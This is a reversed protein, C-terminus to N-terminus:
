QEAHYTYTYTTATAPNTATKIDLTTTSSNYYYQLGAGTADAPSLTVRPATGYASAFTVTALTGATCTGTATTITVTGSIDNGTITVTPSTLTCTAAAGAAVTTSGSTNGTIIHGNITINGNITAAKVTLAGTIDLTALDASTADQFKFFNGTPATDTNRKAYFVNGGNAIQRIDLNGSLSSLTTTGIGVNGRLATTTISSNGLVATNSGLGIAGYGIVIENADGNALAKTENGLYVSSGSTQNATTGDAIYRGANVGMATNNSGTTNFYLAAQGLASNNTGTTNSNLAVYGLATHNIGTTNSQLSSVGNATNNYGTTNSNLANVGLATNYYGTNVRLANYGVATTANDAVLTRVTGNFIIGGTTNVRSESVGLSGDAINDTYTTTTNDNITTVLKMQFTSGGATTRYIKRATVSTDSSTPIASLNVQQSAPNVVASATGTETEGLATVYSVRYQYAGNLNGATANVAVTPATPTAVQDFRLNGNTVQLKQAPATTGVGVNGRLATTTISSNGLVATNSGLGTANYGIVIENADGSALAKTDNGLYVSTGSTQNATSGDAIYRGAQYGLATNSSGTTNSYLAVHGLATNNSGTTNLGLANQGIASNSSGTTNQSLAVYGIASNSSGTTNSYLATYGLASNNTGTTNSQLSSVGNATNNSGTTNSFLANIGLASNNYGTNVRLANVGIATTANDIIGSRITGNFLLGGTTNVRSESVGLSGDAINDTYTTTTNDNITTVLKMLFTSGGATTRYIKRATVSTDSSTPIASLDVQQSAPNVVASAAGTETEGLATVYSVRYQYAGNLNGATANVAVTPATPTAVQDFRLNGNTVQLKQAPNSAGIGVNGTNDITLRVANSATTDTLTFFDNNVSPSGAQLLWSHGGGGNSLKLGNSFSAGGTPKVELTAGPATIGIGVNGRLATTTISSNGLVATNSGLGIANYGIVIENADGSALAKTDNGLYVSSGSTQNATTGDAIFRGAQYGIATNSSGTTNSYLAVHGLATNNSGTTNSFLAAQGLASNSSGTTNSQLSSFGNATNNSGTTNSFLANIGLASNNYGTNVRLANVGIATTANDIIGSRITGNFLLGGTTNVRSESVGLSGDAINDTYTTTTNDNITTVLKMQFASGGATTRYIKRATVSTDSSTPIASLNVQQSAPNVVASATGTETEGLATVYSVRYQYAGNLNGATANVAVTPATPTAVQDFRLNGNTVQLKQAPATTGIGVNGRLATTTISSNGLVATNSGLGIAGYGIVIENTGGNALAKTSAGLYLSNGSTQNATIDDAIYRGAVIGIATNNSGTTNSLLAGYGMATNNGGSTNSQLVFAGNATNNGGITNNYLAQIGQATSGNGTTNSYLANVGLASNYYGTNVRLANYGIATTALDTVLTRATGNFVIGGTTNVRSENVGLSGDAINDTYTTTTNDNITTVLKMQFASGGATTRYIKRATVSTDSSTPIASLDVQQSAPNVVASATGTETEGLATVYSVRYQYAGNLNGATVNVAVTPATPFAVQDFRLNGNTVQLKQAPATTGIGLNGAVLLTDDTKLTNAASRYLNTDTGFTIGSAATGATSSLQLSYTSAGAIRVGINSASGLTQGAVDIGYINAPVITGLVPAAVYMATANTVAGSDSGTDIRNFGAYVTGITVGSPPTSRALNIFGYATSINASPKFEPQASLGGPGDASGTFIPTVSMGRANVTATSTTGSVSLFLSTNSTPVIQLADDTKLTDAASRYLNTDRTATGSGFELIGTSTIGAVAVGGSNNAFLGSNAILSDDTKLIDAASRYLNTDTGFLIGGAATTDAVFTLKSNINTIAGGIGINGAPTIEIANLLDTANRISLNGVRGAVGSGMTRIRWSKGGVSTNTIEIGTENTDADQIDLRMGPSTATGIGVNGGATQLLLNGYTGATGLGSGPAGGQLTISGGNGNTSGSPADGGAGSTLNILSGTGATQGTTGTTNGGKNGTVGLITGGATGAGAVAVPQTGHGVTLVNAATSNQLQLLDATQSAFGKIIQGITGVAGTNVQLKAGPATEGIGVNGNQDIRLREARTISNNPATSFTLATGQNTGATWAQTAVGTIDAGINQTFTSANGSGFQIRGVAASLGPNGGTVSRLLSVTNASSSNVVLAETPATTGIGVNGTTTIEIPNVNDTVNRISLNGVRGTVGSGLTRIRWQKGGVSTNNLEIGTESTDANELDILMDPNTTGIGVKGSADITMRTGFTNNLTGFNLKATSGGTRETWIKAFDTTSTTTRFKLEATEGDTTAFNQIVLSTDGAGNAQSIHLAEAPSTTGIGVSNADTLTMTTTGAENQFQLSSSTGSAKIYNYGGSGAAGIILGRGGGDINTFRAVDQNGSGTTTVQLKTTPSATGIGVNGGATQLLLNGYSGATGAGSGPAGGQLTISGGNGNTSGSPADGGAGSTLNILSGTGATQGTTGTTNGGKNGTVGLITGGATGAGAVAVPQTGHGVTLVNAATSNQLQLLDATQSAAAKIIQGITGAASNTIQLKAGPSTEGIGVNGAVLLTDDTKLTDAASRYLNTDGAWNIDNGVGSAGSTMYIAHGTTVGTPKQDGIYIGYSTTIAGSGVSPSRVDVGRFYPVTATSLNQFNIDLGKVAIAGTNAIFPNLYIGGMFSGVATKDFTTNWQPQFVAALEYLGLGNDSAPAYIPNFMMSSQTSSLATNTDSINVRYATSTTGVSLKGDVIVGDNTRLTDAASRYLNTDTGFLIGGAATTDAAFTLKSNIGTTTGIGVNGNNDIVFPTSDTDTGDDNVRLAYGTGAHSVIVGDVAGTNLQDVKFVFTSDSGGVAPNRVILSDDTTTLAIISNGGDIDASYAAQLTNGAVGACNGAMTCIDYTGPLADALRYTINATPNVVTLVTKNTDVTTGEWALSADNQVTLTPIGNNQLVLINGTSTSNNVVLANGSTLGTITTAGTLNLTSASQIAITGANSSGISVTGTSSGTNINTAFNSNVNLSLDAGSTAIGSTATILGSFTPNNVVSLTYASNAGGDVATLNLGATISRESSLTANNGVTLYAAGNPSSGNGGICNGGNTCLTYNGAALAPVNITTNAIPPTFGLTTTNTGDTVKFTSDLGGQLSLNFGATLRGVILRSPNTANIAGNAIISDDSNADTLISDDRNRLSIYGFTLLAIAAMVALFTFVPRWPFPSRRKNKGDPKIPGFSGYSILPVAHGNVPQGINSSALDSVNGVSASSEIDYPQNFITTIPQKDEM